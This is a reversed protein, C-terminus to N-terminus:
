FDYSLSLGVTRKDPLGLRIENLVSNSFFVDNARVGETMNDDNTVNDIYAELRLQDNSIGTPTAMGVGVSLGQGLSGTSVDCGKIYKSAPHGQLNSHVRRLTKLEDWPIFGAQMLTAYYAPAGHGKSM